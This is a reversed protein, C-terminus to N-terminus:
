NELEKVKDNVVNYGEVVYNDPSVSRGFALSLM